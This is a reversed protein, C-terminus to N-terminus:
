RFRVSCPIYPQRADCAGERDAGQRAQQKRNEQFKRVFPSTSPLMLDAVHGQLPMCVAARMDEAIKGLDKLNRSRAVDQRVLVFYVRPRSVPTGLALSDIPMVIIYYGSVRRMHKIVTDLVSMIGSVNELIAVAPRKTELVKLMAFFPKAHPSQLPNRRDPRLSSFSKCPFGCTYLTVRPLTQHDRTLMDPYIAKVSPCTAKIFERVQPDIDCAFAHTHPLGLVRLAWVPAEAGSCDTGVVLQGPAPWSVRVGQSRCSAEAARRLTLCFPPGLPVGVKPVCPAVAPTRPEQRRSCPAGQRPPPTPAAARARLLSGIM